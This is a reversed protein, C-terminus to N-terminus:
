LPRAALRRALGPSVRTMMPAPDDRTAIAGPGSLMVSHEGIFQNLATPTTIDVATATDFCLAPQTIKFWTHGSRECAYFYLREIAHAPTHDVQASEEPFDDFGLKLDLLPRLAAPRAWFMSGSPFDLARRPSINLGMRAALAHAAQFNGNWGIWRRIGEFHQPAVMGLDPVRAFADLISRVIEPSGLLIEFLYSRWPALFAAHTSIKSHLHLVLDYRDYVDAFGVLKPAIDRGRNPTTRIEVAGKDWGAFVSQLAAQKEPTDTSLFLDAPVPINRLYFLM